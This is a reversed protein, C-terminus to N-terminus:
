PSTFARINDLDISESFHEIKQFVKQTEMKYVKFRLQLLKVKVKIMTNYTQHTTNTCEQKAL